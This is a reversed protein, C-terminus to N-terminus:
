FEKDIMKIKEELQAMEERAAAIKKQIDAKFLDANKSKAFFGMNNELVAVDQEIKRFKQLLREREYKLGREGKVNGKIDAVKKRFKTLEKENAVNRIQGFKENMAANFAQQVASKEKFPVFGIENFKEVFARMAAVDEEKEGTIVYSSIEEIVAKKAELNAAYEEDNGNFHKSKNNFFTDCAARFRKWVADSQKRAVPGVEKWEKQLAILQDTASKWDQSNMLAEAKECLAEKKALNEQMVNKFNAYYERKANYFKDCAERLRAYIKQNDKKAAFGIGKWEEQLAEMQKSLSNWENSDEVSKGAIEEARECIKEKLELNKKQEDKLNEFFAQHRKNITATIAKFREWISERYEKAVPGLEKWEDHLTQLEKFAEVVNPANELAEARECLATKAELNKKFDLDRFENNIKIYDYFKEVLHQYTEWVEKLNAQPIQGIEKWRAQLDRFAPFTQNVDEAKELLAKLEEIVQMKKALNEAKTREMDQVFLTRESRYKAFLEKFGKEIEMFPNPREEGKGDAGASGEEFAGAAIKERKLVKYFSAKIVDSYKYLEQQDGRALMEEFERIIDKLGMSSYDPAAQLGSEAEANVNVSQIEPANMEENLATTMEEMDIIKLYFVSGYLSM